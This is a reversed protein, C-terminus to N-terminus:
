AAQTRRRDVKGRLDVFTSASEELHYHQLRRYATAIAVLNKAHDIDIGSEQMVIQTEIETNPYNFEIAVFRQRTSPKLNKLLNQYGPNYSAVLM